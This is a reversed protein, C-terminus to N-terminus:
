VRDGSWISEVDVSRGGGIRCVHMVGFPEIPRLEPEESKRDFRGPESLESSSSSMSAGVDIDGEEGLLAGAPRRLICAEISM